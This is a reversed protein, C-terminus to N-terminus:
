REVKPIAAGLQAEVWQGNVKVVISGVPTNGKRATVRFGLDAGSVVFPPDVPAPMVQASAWVGVAAIVAVVILCIRSRMSM